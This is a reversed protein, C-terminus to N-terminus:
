IRRNTMAEDIMKSEKMCNIPSTILSLVIFFLFRICVYYLNDKVFVDPWSVEEHQMSSFFYIYIIYIIESTM